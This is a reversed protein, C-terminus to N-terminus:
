SEPDDPHELQWAVRWKYEEPQRRAPPDYVEGDRILRGVLEFLAEWEEEEMNLSPIPEQIELVPLPTGRAHRAHLLNRLAELVPPVIDIEDDGRRKWVYAYLHVHRLPPYVGGRPAPLLRIATKWSTTTLQTTSRCDLHTIMACPLAKLIKTMIQRLAHETTPHTNMLIAARDYELPNPVAAASFGSIMFHTRTGRSESANIQLCRLVSAAPARLHRRVPILLNVIDAGSSIGLGYLTIRITPSIIIHRLLENCFEVNDQIWLFELAPLSVVPYSQAPNYSTIIRGLKVSTLTPSAELVHLVLMVKTWQLEFPPGSLFAYM